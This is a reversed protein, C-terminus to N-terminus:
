IATKLMGVNGLSLFCFLYQCYHSQIYMEWVWMAFKIRLEFWLVHYCCYQLVWISGLSAKLAKLIDEFNLTLLTPKRILKEIICKDVSTATPWAIGQLTLAFTSM